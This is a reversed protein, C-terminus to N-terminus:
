SFSQRYKTIINSISYDFQPKNDTMRIKLWKGRLRNGYMAGNARPFAYIINGERDTILQKDTNKYEFEQLDTTYKFTKTIMFNHEFDQDYNKKVINIKQNDFVKTQQPNQNVVFEIITPKLYELSKESSLRNYQIVNGDKTIGYLINDITITSDYRRTYISQAIQGLISFVLQDKHLCNCLLEKSEEDYDILPISEKDFNSNLLNQVGSLTSYNQISQSYKLVSINDSDIWYVNNEIIKSSYDQDRMGYTTDIYDTRQLVGGQGLQITNNNNDVVLSRENVSLKGFAQTQWYYLTDRLSKMNTVAGYRSDCDIFNNTQIITWNDIKEGDTKKNSYFIRQPFQNESEDLSQANYYQDSKNNCSFVYNYQFQPRSQSIIGTIEGPELQINHSSTNRFNMGYDLYTNIVSEIPIFYTIQMSALTDLNSIFDYAKYMSTIEAPTIYVDGNFIQIPGDNCKGYDGFGYYMDYQMEEKSNGSFSIAQHCVNIITEQMKERKPGHLLNKSAALLCVPGPGIWGSNVPPTKTSSINGSVISLEDGSWFRDYPGADDSSNQFERYWDAYGVTGESESSAEGAKLDYKWNAVWNVYNISCFTTSYTKYQKSATGPRGDIYQYNSFGQNWQANKSDSFDKIENDTGFYEYNLTNYYPLVISTSIKNTLIEEKDFACKASSKDFGEEFLLDKDAFSKDYYIFRYIGDEDKTIYKDLASYDSIVQLASNGYEKIIKNYINKSETKLASYYENYIVDNPFNVFDESIVDNLSILIGYIAESDYWGSDSVGPEVYSKNISVIKKYLGTNVLDSYTNKYTYALRKLYLGQSIIYFSHRNQGNWRKSTQLRNNINDNYALVKTSASKSKCIEGKLTDLTSQRKINIDPSYLITCYNDNDNSKYSHSVPYGIPWREYEADVLLSDTIFPTPYWPSLKDPTEYGNKPLSNRTPHSQAFQFLSRRYKSDKSCRVIQYSEINDPVDTVNIQIGIPRAYLVGNIIITSSFLAEHPTPIDEIWQVDSKNGYKDYYIIGFRYVEDRRLSRFMSSAIGCYSCDDYSQTGIYKNNLYDEQTKGTDYLDGNYLLYYIHNLNVNINNMSKYTKDMKGNGYEQTFTNDLPVYTTIMNWQVNPSQGGIVNSNSPYVFNDMDQYTYPFYDKSLNTYRTRYYKNQYEKDKFYQDYTIDPGSNDFSDCASVLRSSANVSVTHSYIDKLEYNARLITQDKVNSMFIYGQASEINNPCITLGNLADFEDKTYEKLVSSDTDNYYSYPEKSIDKPLQLDAIMYYKIDDESTQQIRFYQINDFKGYVRSDNYRLDVQLKFGKSTKTDKANGTEQNKNNSFVQIKNTLPSLKSFIGNKKYLRYTYQIQSAPLQGSIQQYLYTKNTPYIHNSILYHISQINKYYDENLLNIQMIPHEGDAIYVKLVDSQEKHMVVSFRKRDTIADKASFILKFLIPSGENNTTEIKYVYWLGKGSEDEIGKAIIVGIKDISDSALIRSIGSTFIGDPSFSFGRNVPSVIGITSNPDLKAQLLTRQMTRINQAYSYQQTDLMDVSTDTNMGKIFTNISISDRNSDTAM